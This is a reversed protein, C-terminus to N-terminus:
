NELKHTNQKQNKNKLEKSNLYSCSWYSSCFSQKTENFKMNTGPNAHALAFSYTTRLSKIANGYLVNM